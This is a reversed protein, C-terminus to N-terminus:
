QSLETFEKKVMLFMEEIKQQFEPQDSFIPNFVLRELEAIIGETVPKVSGRSEMLQYMTLLDIRRLFYQEKQQSRFHRLFAHLTNPWNGGDDQFPMNGYNPKDYYALHYGRNAVSYQNNNLLLNFFEDEKDLQGKKIAGFYLSLSVSIHNEINFARKLREEQEECELRSVHYIAHVRIAVSLNDDSGINHLYQEFINNAVRKREEETGERWIGRFYRNIEPRVVYRLFEPYPDRKHLSADYFANAVLFELFQEHFTGYIKGNAIDFLAEFLNPHYVIEFEPLLKKQLLYFSEDMKAQEVTLKKQYVSWAFYSWIIILDSEGITSGTRHIERKAMEYLFAQFLQVRTSITEPITMRNSEIVWLLMTILLPSDLLSCLESNNALLGYVRESFSKDTGKKACFNNIYGKAKEADWKNIKIQVAFHNMLDYNGLYRRVYQIRSTLLLPHSFISSTSIRKVSTSPIEEALEDFGDLYFCPSIDSLDLFPYPQLNLNEAFSEDIYQSFDFHYNANKDKLWLYFPMNYDNDSKFREVHKLFSKALITTKGYGAEGYILISKHELLTSVISEELANDECFPDGSEQVYEPDVYYGNRFVDGLSMSFCTSTKRALLKERQADIIKKLWFRSLGSLKGEVNSLLEPIGDFFSIWNSCGHENYAHELKNVFHLTDVSSVYKCQYDVDFKETAQGSAKLDVKYAHAEDWTNKNVFVLCPIHREIAKVGM